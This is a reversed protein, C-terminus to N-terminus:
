CVECQFTRKAQAEVEQSRIRSPGDGGGDYAVGHLRLCSYVNQTRERENCQTAGERSISGPGDPSLWAQIQQDQIRQDELNYDRIIKNLVGEPKGLYEAGRAFSYGRYEGEWVRGGVQPWKELVLIDKTRLKYAVTLGSIGGGVIVSTFTHGNDAAEREKATVPNVAAALSLFGSACFSIVFRRSSM